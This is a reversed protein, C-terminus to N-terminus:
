KPQKKAREVKKDIEPNGTLPMAKASEPDLRNFRDATKKGDVLDPHYGNVMKPPPTEPFGLPAPKGDYYGPIKNLVEEPSKIKRKELIVQGQPKYSATRFLGTNSWPDRSPGAPSYQKMNPDYKIPTYPGKPGPISTPGTDQIRQGSLSGAILNSIDTIDVGPIDGSEGPPVAGTGPFNSGFIKDIYEESARLMEKLKEAREQPSLNQMMPSTRIFASAEPSDLPAFVNVPTRRQLGLASIGYTTAIKRHTAAFANIIQNSIYIQEPGSISRTYGDIPSPYGPNSPWNGVYSNQLKDWIFYGYDSKQQNTINPYYSLLSNIFGGVSADFTSPHLSTLKQGVYQQGGVEPLSTVGDEEVFIELGPGRARLPLDFGISTPSSSSLNTKLINGLIGGDDGRFWYVTLDRTPEKTYKTGTNSGKIVSLSITTYKTADVPNLGVFRPDNFNGSSPYGTLQLYSNGFDNGVSAGDSFSAQYQSASMAELDVNGAAPLTLFFVGSSTMGENIEWRWDVKLSELIEKRKVEEALIKNIKNEREEILKLRLRNDQEREDLLRRFEKSKTSCRMM